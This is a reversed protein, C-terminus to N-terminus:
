IRLQSGINSHDQPRAPAPTTGFYITARKRAPTRTFSRSRTASQSLALAVKALTPTIASGGAGYIVHTLSNATIVDACTVAYASGAHAISALGMAAAAAV